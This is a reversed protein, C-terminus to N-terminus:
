SDWGFLYGEFGRDENGHFDYDDQTDEEFDDDFDLYPDYADIKSEMESMEMAYYDYMTNFESM